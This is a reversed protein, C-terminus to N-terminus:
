SGRMIPNSAKGMNLLSRHGKKNALSNFDFGDMDHVNGELGYAKAEKAM